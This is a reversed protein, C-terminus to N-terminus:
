YTVYSKYSIVTHISDFVYNYKYCSFLFSFELSQISIYKVLKRKAEFLQGCARDIGKKTM